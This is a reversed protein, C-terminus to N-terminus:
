SAAPLSARRRADVELVDTMRVTGAVVANPAGGLHAYEKALALCQLRQAVRLDDREVLCVGGLREGFEGLRRARWLQSFGELRMEFFCSALDISQFLDEFREFLLNASLVAFADRADDFFALHDHVLVEIVVGHIGAQNAGTLTCFMVLHCSVAREDRPRTCHTVGIGGIQELISRRETATRLFNENAIREQYFALVDLTTALGDCLAITFDSDDRTTLGALAPLEANSLRALLSEKFRAHTGVRYAVASQGAPNDIRAPTETDIGSCCGCTGTDFDSM